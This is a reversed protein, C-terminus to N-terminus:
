NGNIQQLTFRQQGASVAPLAANGEIMSRDFSTLTAIRNLASSRAQLRPLSANAEHQQQSERASTKRKRRRLATKPVEIRTALVARRHIEESRRNKLLDDPYDMSSSHSTSGHMDNMYADYQSRIYEPDKIPADVPQGDVFHRRTACYTDLDQDIFLLNNSQNYGGETGDEDEKGKGTSWDDDMEDDLNFKESMVMQEAKGVRNHDYFCIGNVRLYKHKNRLFNKIQDIKQKEVSGTDQDDQHVFAPFMSDSRMLTRLSPSNEESSHAEDRNVIDEYHRIVQETQADTSQTVADVFDQDVVYTSFIDSNEPDQLPILFKQPRFKASVTVEMFTEILIRGSDMYHNAAEPAFFLCRNGYTEMIPIQTRELKRLLPECVTEGAGNRRPTVRSYAYERKVIEAEGQDPSFIYGQECIEEVVAKLHAVPAKHEDPLKARIQQYIDAGFFLTMYNPNICQENPDQLNAINTSGAFRTPGNSGNGSHSTRQAADVRAKEVAKNSKIRWSIDKGPDNRMAQEATCGAPWKAGALSAMAQLIYGIEEHIWENRLLVLNFLFLQKTPYLYPSVYENFRERWDNKQYGLGGPTDFALTIANVVVSHRLAILIKTHTRNWNQDSQEVIGRKKLQMSMRGLIQPYPHLSFDPFEGTELKKYVMFVKVQHLHFFRQPDGDIKLGNAQLSVPTIRAPKKIMVIFRNRLAADIQEPMLNTPVVHTAKIMLQKEKVTLVKNGSASQVYEARRISVVGGGLAAKNIDEGTKGGDVYLLGAGEDSGVAYDCDHSSTDAHESKYEERRFTEAIFAWMMIVIAPFTKGAGPPGAIIFHLLSANYRFDYCSMLMLCVISILTDEVGKHKRFIASSRVIWHAYHDMNPDLIYVPTSLSEKVNSETWELIKQCPKTMYHGLGLRFCQQFKEKGMNKVMMLTQRYKQYKEPEGIPDSPFLGATYRYINEKMFYAHQALNDTEYPAHCAGLGRYVQMEDTIASGIGKGSSTGKRLGKVDDDHKAIDLVEETNVRKLHPWLYSFLGLLPYAPSQKHFMLHVKFAGEPFRQMEPVRLTNGGVFYKSADCLSPDAGWHRLIRLSNDVTMWNLPNLKGDPSQVEHSHALSPISHTDFNKSEASFFAWLRLLKEFTVKFAPHDKSFPLLTSLPHSESDSSRYRRHNSSLKNLIAREGILRMFAAGPNWQPDQICFVAMYGVLESNPDEADKLIPVYVCSIKELQKTNGGLTEQNHEMLQRTSQLRAEIDEPPPPPSSSEDRVEEANSPEGQEVSNVSHPSVTELQNSEPLGSVYAPISCVFFGHEGPSQIVRGLDEGHRPSSSGQSGNNGRRSNHTNDEEDSDPNAIADSLFEQISAMSIDKPPVGKKLALNIAKKYADLEEKDGRNFNWSHSIYKKVAKQENPTAISLARKAALIMVHSRLRKKNSSVTYSESGNRGDEVASFLLLAADGLESYEAQTNIDGWSTTGFPTQGDNAIPIPVALFKGTSAEFEKGREVFPVEATAPLRGTSNGM